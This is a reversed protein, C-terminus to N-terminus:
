SLIMNRAHRVSAKTVRILLTGKEEGLTLEVSNVGPMDRQKLARVILNGLVQARAYDTM